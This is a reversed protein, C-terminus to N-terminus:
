DNMARSNTTASRDGLRGPRGAAAAAIPYASITRDTVALLLRETMFLDGGLAGTDDGRFIKRVSGSHPDIEFIGRPTLQWIGGKRVLVKAELSGGPLRTAWLLKRTQLDLASLEPGGLFVTQDLAGLLRASEAIPRDWLMKMRDSDLAHIRGSKAGKLILAEGAKLPVSSASMEKQQMRRYFFRSGEVPATQYGYGWDLEGSEADLRALIGVHTDVYISGAHKFLKPQPSDDPMGYFMFMQNQMQRFTGVEVKWLLKGDLARIALVYQHPQGQQQNTPTKGVVYLTEGALIPTSVLDVQAYDPLNTSQWTVDGGDARRCTLVFSGFQNPDKLDRGLTWVHTKSALIAFRKTDLMRAQGQSAPVELNHFSASRWILKGTELNLAFIYGLFNAYLVNGHVAVAPVAASLPNSEWQTREPPTMGAVVSEGFRMQWLAPVARSLDPEIGSAEVSGASESENTAPDKSGREDSLCRALHEAAPAVRGGISIKEDAYREQLDHRIAAIEARRGARALALASKVSILAPSLDSDPHERLVALWCDAARDFRGMEFYLDGLRDAANDGVSTLFYASFIRELTKLETPGEAQELLKKAPDDYFLRYTALGDPPLESLVARRKRAVPIIYGNQGDVFRGTQEEPIAYLSKLAREWAGRKRFREYDDFAEKVESSAPPVQLPRDPKDNSVKDADDEKAQGFVLTPFFLLAFTALYVAKM